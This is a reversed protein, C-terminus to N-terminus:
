IFLCVSLCLSLCLKYRIYTFYVVIKDSYIRSFELYIIKTKLFQLRFQKLTKRSLLCIYILMITSKINDSIISFNNFYKCFFKRKNKAYTFKVEKMFPLNQGFRISDNGCVSVKSDRYKQLMIAYMKSIKFKSLKIYCFEYNSIHDKVNSFWLKHSLSLKKTGLDFNLPESLKQRLAQLLCSINTARRVTVSIQLM